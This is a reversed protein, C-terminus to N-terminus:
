LGAQKRMKAALKPDRRELEQLVAELQERAATMKTELESMHKDAEERPLRAIEEETWQRPENSM